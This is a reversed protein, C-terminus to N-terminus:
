ADRGLGRALRGAVRRLGRRALELAKEAPMLVSGRLREDPRARFITSHYRGDWGPPPEKTYYYAAFSQRQHDPPCSVKEVGHFSTRTTEFVLCRNLKPVCYFERRTVDRDWLELGGGWSPDWRPNLYVLINLRRFLRQDELFNFDAHVDVRGSTRTIHMGGGHLKPDAVLDPIGTIESLRDLFAQSALADSLARVPAPFLDRDTIQVKGTENLKEFHRGLRTAEDFAPYARVVEALLAADVFDDLVFFPFPEARRYMVRAAEVDIPGLVSSAASM